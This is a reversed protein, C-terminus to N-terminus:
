RKGGNVAGREKGRICADLWSDGYESKSSDGLISHM